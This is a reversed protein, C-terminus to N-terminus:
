QNNIGTIFKEDDYEGAVGAAVSHFLNPSPCLSGARGHADLSLDTITIKCASTTGSMNCIVKSNICEWNNPGNPYYQVKIWATTPQDRFSFATGVAIVIAALTLITHKAKM